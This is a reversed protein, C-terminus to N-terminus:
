SQTAPDNRACQSLSGTDWHRYIEPRRDQLYWPGEPGPQPRAPVHVVVLGPEDQLAALVAGDPGAVVSRGKFDWGDATGVHNAYAVTMRNELARTPIVLHPIQPFDGALATPVLLVDAGAAAVARAMEPFEIDYCVALGVQRGDFEVVPPAQTGAQFAANEEPGFLHVKQYHARRTGTADVLTATIGRCAPDEDGPLSYVLGIRYRRAIDALEGHAFAVDAPSIKDRIRQPAYGVVFLEPTLLLAADQAAATEAAIEMLALNHEIQGPKATQQFVAIRMTGNHRGVARTTLVRDDLVGFEACVLRLTFVDHTFHRQVPAKTRM